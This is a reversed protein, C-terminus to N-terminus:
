AGEGRVGNRPPSPAHPARRRRRWSRTGFIASLVAILLALAYWQFAYGRHKEIGAAPPQWKRALGDGADSTQQVVFDAVKLGSAQEFRRYDLNPWVSGLDRPSKDEGLELIRPVHAVALGVLHVPEDVPPPLRPLGAGDGPARPMWGRNVLVVGHGGELALPTVAYLGPRGDVIRNGVWVTKDHLLRGRLAVRRPLAASVQTLANNGAVSLPERAEAAAWDREIAQKQEARRTQWQALAICVCVGAIAAVWPVARRRISNASHM